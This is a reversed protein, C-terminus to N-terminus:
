KRWLYTDKPLGQRIAKNRLTQADHLNLNVGITVAYYRSGDTPLYVKALYHKRKLRKVQATAKQESIHSGVIVFWDDGSSSVRRGILGRLFREFNSIKAEQFFAQNIYHHRSANVSGAAHATSIFPLILNPTESGDQLATKMEKFTAGSGIIGYGNIATTLLAPAAIGLQFVKFPEQEKNHMYGVLAGIFILVLCRVALGVADMLALDDILSNLDVVLLSVLLPAIGGIGGIVIRTRPAILNPKRAM